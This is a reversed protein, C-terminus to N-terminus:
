VSTSSRMGETLWGPAHDSGNRCSLKIRYGIRFDELLDQVAVEIDALPLFPQTDEVIKVPDHETTNQRHFISVYLSCPDECLLIGGQTGPIQNMEPNHQAM